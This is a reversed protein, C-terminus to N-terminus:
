PDPGRITARPARNRSASDMPRDQAARGAAEHVGFHPPREMVDRCRFRENRAAKVSDAHTRGAGRITAPAPGAMATCLRRTGTAM